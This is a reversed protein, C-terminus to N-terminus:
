HFFPSTNDAIINMFAVLRGFGARYAPDAAILEDLNLRRWNLDTLIVYEFNM